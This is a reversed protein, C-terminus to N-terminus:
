RAREPAGRMMNCGHGVGLDDPLKSLVLIGCAAVHGLCLPQRPHEAAATIGPGTDIRAPAQQRDALCRRLPSTGLDGNPAQRFIMGADGLTEPALKENPGIGRAQDFIIV